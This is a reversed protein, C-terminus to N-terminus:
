MIIGDWCRREVEGPLQEVRCERDLLLTRRSKVDFAPWELTPTSPDGNRAFAVWADGMKKALADAEPGKGALGAVRQHTGFVFPIELAHCAGLVGNGWPSPWDFRYTFVSRLYAVQAEALRDAPVRFRHNTLIALFSALTDAPEGRATRAEKYECLIRRAQDVDGEKSILYGIATLALDDSAKEAEPLGLLFLRAEDANTGIIVPVNKASGRRLAEVPLEPLFRGDVAPRFRFGFPHGERMKVADAEEIKRQAELIQGSPLARLRSAAIGPEGLTKAFLAENERADELTLVNHAVGSQMIARKFLGAAVPSAMLMAVSAAGASEGFITVNDPDGGFSAIEERVWRLAAVQDLLGFNACYADTEETLEPLYLFGLAGLRYNITVVVVDRVALAHGSFLPISGAGTLFSGGHIWVMVPRRADDIAPTWINLYLCDESMEAQQEPGGFVLQLLRNPIQPAVPGPATAERVGQWSELPKPARFRLDGVPPQAFPVGRFVVLGDEEAGRVAGKNTSVVSNM